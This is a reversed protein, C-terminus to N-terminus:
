LFIMYILAMSIVFPSFYFAIEKGSYILKYIPVARNPANIEAIKTCVILPFPNTLPIKEVLVCYNDHPLYSDLIKM